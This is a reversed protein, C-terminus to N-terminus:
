SVPVGPCLGPSIATSRARESRGPWPSPRRSARRAAASSSRTLRRRGKTSFLRRVAPLNRGTLATGGLKLLVDGAQLGAKAAPSDKVVQVVTIGEPKASLQMGAMDVEDVADFTPGKQLYM